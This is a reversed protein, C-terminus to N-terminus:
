PPLSGLAVDMRLLGHQQLGQAIQGIRASLGLGGLRQGDRGEGVWNADTDGEPAPCSGESAGASAETATKSSGSRWPSTEGDVSACRQSPAVPAM